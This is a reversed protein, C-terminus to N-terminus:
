KARSKLRILEYINKNERSNRIEPLVQRMRAVVTFYETNGDQRRYTRVNYIAKETSQQVRIIPKYIEERGINANADGLIIKMDFNPRKDYVGHREYFERQPPHM